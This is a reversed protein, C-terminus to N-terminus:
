YRRPARRGPAASRPTDLPGPRRRQHRRGARALVPDAALIPKAWAPATANTWERVTARIRSALEAVLEERRVLYPAGRPDDRLGAPIAPLWRLPGIRTSHGGTPDIRWDLVAAPDAADGLPAQSIADALVTAADDGAAAVLALHKCLVPWGDAGTLGPTSLEAATHIEALRRSGLQHEAAASVADSYMDAAACLRTFPNNADRQASLASTQADTHGLARTLVDVATDPHTAKPTLIRHPDTEATSLYIHNERKGRTVAVYLQQRSLHDGGV